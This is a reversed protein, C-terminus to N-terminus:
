SPVPKANADPLDSTGLYRGDAIAKVLTERDEEANARFEVFLTLEEGARLVRLEIGDSRLSRAALYEDLGRTRRGNVSLVIDGYRVGAEHATSQPLCGFIPVGEVANAIESLQKRSIMM